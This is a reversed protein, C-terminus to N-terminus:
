PSRRDILPDLGEGEAWTRWSKDICKTSDVLVGDLDFLIADCGLQAKPPSQM